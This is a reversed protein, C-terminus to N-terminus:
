KFRHTKDLVVGGLVSGFVGALVMTFGIRGGDAESNEFYLLLVQNLLTSIAYFTGMNIGYSVVLLLFNKNTVLSKLSTFYSPKEEQRKVSAQAQSPPLPPAARFVACM